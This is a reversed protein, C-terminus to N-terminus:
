HDGSATARREHHQSVPAPRGARVGGSPALRRGTGVARVLQLPSRHRGLPPLRGVQDDAVCHGRCSRADDAPQRRGRVRQETGRAVVPVAGLFIPGRGPQPSADEPHPSRPPPRRRVLGEGPPSTGAVAGDDRFATQWEDEEVLSHLQILDVTDKHTRAASPNPRADDATPGPRRRWSCTTETARCSTTSASRVTATCRQRTSTNIGAETILELTATSRAAPEHGGACGRPDRAFQHPRHGSPLPQDTM